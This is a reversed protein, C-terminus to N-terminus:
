LDKADRKLKSGVKLRRATEYVDQHVRDLFTLLEWERWALFKRSNEDGSLGCGVQYAVKCTKISSRFSDYDKLSLELAVKRRNCASVAAFSLSINAGTSALWLPVIVQECSSRGWDWGINIELRSIIKLAHSGVRATFRDLATLVQEGPTNLVFNNCKCFVVRAECNIQKCIYLLALVNANWTDDLPQIYDDGQGDSCLALRVEKGQPLVLRYIENRLEPPLLALPSSDM